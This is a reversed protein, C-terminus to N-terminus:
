SANPRGLTSAFTTAGPSVWVPSRAGDGAPPALCVDIQKWVQARERCIRRVDYRGFGHLSAHALWMDHHAPQDGDGTLWACGGAWAAADDLYTLLKSRGAGDVAGPALDIGAYDDHALPPLHRDCDAAWRELERLAVVRTRWHQHDQALRLFGDVATAEEVLWDLLRDACRPSRARLGWEDARERAGTRLLRSTYGALVLYHVDDPRVPAAEARPRYRMEFQQFREFRRLGRLDPDGDLIWDIRRALAGADLMTVAEELHNMAADAFAATQADSRDPQAGTRDEGQPLLGVAYTCAANYEAMWQRPRLRPRVRRQLRRRLSAPDLEEAGIRQRRFEAWVRAVRVGRRTLGTRDFWALGWARPPWPRLWRLEGALLGLEHQSAGAFLERLCRERESLPPSTDTLPWDPINAAEVPLTREVWSRYEALRPRLRERLAEREANRRANGPGEGKKMWQRALREDFGLLVARRYRAVLALRREARWALIARPRLGIPQDREALQLLADYTAYADLWLALQEQVAGIELRLQLNRPDADLADHLEDLAVDLRRGQAAETARTVREVLRAPLETGSWGTWPPRRCAATRPLLYAAAEFAAREVATEWTAGWAQLPPSVFRPAIVIQVAVGCPEPGPRRLLTGSVRYASSPVVSGLLGAITKIVNKPDEVAGSLLQIFDHTQPAGPQSEASQLHVAALRRRFLLSLAVAPPAVAGAAVDAEKPEARADGEGALAKSAAADAAFDLVEIPGPRWALRRLRLRRAAYLGLILGLFAAITLALPSTRLATWSRDLWGEPGLFGLERLLSTLWPEPSAASVLLAGLWLLCAILVAAWVYGRAGPIRAADSREVRKRVFPPM